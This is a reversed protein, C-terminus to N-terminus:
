KVFPVITVLPRLKLNNLWYHDLFFRQRAQTEQEALYFVSAMNKPDPNEPNSPYTCVYVETREYVLDKLYVDEIHREAEILRTCWLMDKMTGHEHKMGRCWYEGM